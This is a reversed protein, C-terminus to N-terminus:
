IRNNICDEIFKEFMLGYKENNYLTAFFTKGIKHMDVNGKTLAIQYENEIYQYKCQFFKVWGEVINWYKIDDEPLNEWDITSHFDFNRNKGNLGLLRKTEQLRDENNAYIWIWSKYTHDLWREKAKCWKLAYNVLKPLRDRLMERYGTSKNM